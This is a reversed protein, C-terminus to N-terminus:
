TNIWKIVEIIDRIDSEFDSQTNFLEYKIIESIVKKDTFLYIIDCKLVNALKYLTYINANNIDIVGQEYKQITKLNIRSLKSLEKQTLGKSKRVEKLM